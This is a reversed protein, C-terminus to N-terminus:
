GGAEYLRSKLTRMATAKNKIQSRDNQCTVVIGSSFHSGSQVRRLQCATGRAVRGISMSGVIWRVGCTDLDDLEAIVDVVFLRTGGLM